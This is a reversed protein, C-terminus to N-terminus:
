LDVLYYAGCFDPDNEFFEDVKKASLPEFARITRTTGDTGQATVVRDARGDGDLDVATVRVPAQSSRTEAASYAVFSAFAKGDLGFSCTRRAL